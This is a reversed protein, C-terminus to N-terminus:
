SRTTSGSAAPWVGFNFALTGVVAMMLLSIWLERTRRVYRWGARIQGKARATVPASRIADTNMMVLATLVAIYSAGDLAFCWAYGVTAILIGAIAPGIVRSSTMLSSNLGVSNSVESEDVLEVFLSRRSPNDFAMTIGSVMAVMDILVLSPNPMSAVFAMAFSQAMAVSQVIILLRRRDSRDSVVGGYSGLLLVPLFQCASLVGVSLGNGGLHLVLLSQAVLTLWNGIQSIGQGIFFLRFNRHRLSRFM